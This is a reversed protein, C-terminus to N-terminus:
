APVLVRLSQPKISVEVTADTLHVEGDTHIPGAESREILFHDGRLSEVHPSQQVTRRFLQTALPLLGLNGFPRIATLDLLGDDVKAGPAIFCDNGYQDSNAVAIVFAPLALQRTGNRIAYDQPQYTMWTRLGTRVYALFGRKTLRNFQSSIEADFGVGMVNFFPLGNAVGTDITRVTAKRLVRLSATGGNPLGLHRGLGNGSGCPILGLIASTNTVARAVENLTGDGGMAVVVDCGEAIANKALETAHHPHTTDVIDGQLQERELFATAERRLKANRPAHGSKPNFIIRYRVTSPDFVDSM